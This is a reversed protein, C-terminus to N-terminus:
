YSVVMELNLGLIEVKKFNGNNLSLITLFHDNFVKTAAIGYCFSSLTDCKERKSDYEIEFGLNTLINGTPASIGVMFPFRKMNDDSAGLGRLGFEAYINQEKFYKLRASISLNNLVEADKDQAVDFINGQYGLAIEHADALKIVERVTLYGKDLNIDNV